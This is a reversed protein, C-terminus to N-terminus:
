VEVRHNTLGRRDTFVDLVPQSELESLYARSTLIQETLDLNIYLSHVDHLVM